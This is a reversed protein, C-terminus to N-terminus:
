KHWNVVMGYKLNLDEVKKKTETSEKRDKEM